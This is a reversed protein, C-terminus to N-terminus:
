NTKIQEWEQKVSNFQMTFKPEEILSLEGNKLEWQQNTVANVVLGDIIFVNDGQTADKLQDGKVIIDAIGDGDVDAEKAKNCSVLTAFVTFIAIGNILQKM